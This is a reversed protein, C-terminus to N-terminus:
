TRACWSSPTSRWRSAPAAADGGLTRESCHVLYGVGGTDILVHDAGRYDLRGSIKGIVRRAEALAAALRGQFRAHHAHCLAVALADAADPGALM